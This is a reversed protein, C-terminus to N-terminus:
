INYTTSPKINPKSINSNKLNNQSKKMAKDQEKFHQNILGIHYRRLWVPMDYVESYIFGGKSVGMRWRSKDQSNIRGFQYCAGDKPNYMYIKNSYSQINSYEEWDYIFRDENNLCLFEYGGFSVKKLGSISEWTQLTQKTGM